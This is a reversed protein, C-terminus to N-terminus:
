PRDFREVKARDKLDKFYTAIQSRLYLNRLETMDTAPADKGSAEIRFIQLASAPGTPTQSQVLTPKTIDGAKGTLLASKLSDPFADILRWGVLGKGQVAAPTSGSAALEKDWNGGPAKLRGYAEDAQKIAASLADAQDSKPHFALTSVKVFKVPAFGLLVLKSLLGQTEIRLYMRSKPFGTDRLYSEITQGPRLGGRARMQDETQKYQLAIQDDIEKRDMSIKKSAAEQKVILYDIVDTTVENGRWDWLAPAIDSTKLSIGNLKALVFDSSPSAKLYESPIDILPKSAQGSSLAIAATIIPLLNM